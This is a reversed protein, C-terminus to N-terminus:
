RHTCDRFSIRADDHQCPGAYEGLVGAPKSSTMQEKKLGTDGTVAAREMRETAGTDNSSHVTADTEGGGAGTM